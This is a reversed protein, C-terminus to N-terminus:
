AATSRSGPLKKYILEARRRGERLEQPSLMSEAHERNALAAENGSRAALAFWAYAEVLDATGLRGMAHFLGLRIQAIVIGQEAAKRMWTEAQVIDATIGIGKEYMLGLNYQSEADGQEAAKTWWFVAEKSDQPCGKGSSLMVALAAQAAAHGSQAAQRFHEHAKELDRPLGGEGKVLRSGLAWLAEPTGRAAEALLQAHESREPTAPDITAGQMRRRAPLPRQGREPAAPTLAAGSMRALLGALPNDPRQLHEHLTRLAEAHGQGAALLLFSLSEASMQGNAKDELLSALDYQAQPLHREAARRLLTEAKRHESKRYLQALAVIAREDNGREAARRYWREAHAKDVPVSLGREFLQGLYFQADVNGQEAAKQWWTAAQRHDKPVGIGQAYLNGLATQAPAFGKKAAARFWNCAEGVAEPDADKAMFIEGLAFEAEALGGEAAKLYWSAAEFKDEKTGRGRMLRNALEYQADVISHEAAKRYWSTTMELGERDIWEALAQYAAPEDQEAAALLCSLAREFSREVGRGEAYLSGLMLMAQANGAEAALRFWCASEEDNVGDRLKAMRLQAEVIGQEAAKLYWAEALAPDAEIGTGHELMQALQYQALGDGQEAARSFWAHAQRNDKALGEGHAYMMGLRTQAAAFGQRAAKRYWAVAAALDANGDIRGSECYTGVIYQANASGGEAAKLFLALAKDAEAESVAEGQQVAIKEAVAVQAEPLGKEAAQRYCEEAFAEHPEALFQGLRFIARSYGQNSAKLYWSLAQRLDQEVGQGNAYKGALIFQAAPVGKDAAKRYWFLAKNFDQETGVGNAYMLGLSFQAGPDGLDASRHTERFRLIDKNPQEAM